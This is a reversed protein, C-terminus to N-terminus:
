DNGEFFLHLLQETDRGPFLCAKSIVFHRLTAPSGVDQNLISQITIAAANQESELQTKGCSIAYRPPTAHLTCMSLFAIDPIQTEPLTAYTPEEWQAEQSITFLIDKPSPVSM